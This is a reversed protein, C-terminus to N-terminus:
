QLQRYVLEYYLKSITGQKRVVELTWVSDPIADDDSEPMISFKELLPTHGSYTVKYKQAGIAVLEYGGQSKKTSKSVACETDQGIICQGEETTIKLNVDKESARPTVVTGQLLVPTV